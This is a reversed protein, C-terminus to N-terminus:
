FNYEITSLVELNTLTVDVKPKNRSLLINKFIVLFNFNDDVLINQTGISKKKLEVPASVVPTIYIIVNITSTNYSFM